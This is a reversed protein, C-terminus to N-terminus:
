PSYAVVHVDQCDGFARTAWAGGNADSWQGVSVCNHETYSPPPNPPYNRVQFDRPTLLGHGTYGRVTSLYHEICGRTLRAGCTTMADTLWQASAWGELGWESHAAPDDNHTARLASRYDAVPAVTTDDFNRTKSTAYISDRCPSPYGAISDRWSQVTQVKAKVRLGGSDMAKCLSQNGADSLVDWVSDVHKSLMDVVASNWDPFALTVQEPVVTYGEARLGEETAQAFRASDAQDYYVVAATRAGVHQAFWRYDETGGYLKGNEGTQGNRPYDDGYISWLHSYTDYANGIPQGGVDPVGKSEVYPAGAYDFITNGAFAFVKDQDILQHVCNQNGSGTGGDDCVKLEIRRGHVGGHANLEDFYASAGYLSPSFADAGLPSSKSVILGVTVTTTTVGTDSATNGAGASSPRSTDAGSGAASTRFASDPLRTGCGAALVTVAVTLGGAARRVSRRM